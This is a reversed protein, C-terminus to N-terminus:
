RPMRELSGVYRVILGTLPHRVEIHFGFREGDAYEYSDGGPAWRRPLPLPGLNWGRVEFRLKGGDVLLAIHCTFPGFREHLLHESRGRGRWMESPLSRGAFSRQWSEGRAHPTVSLVVAVDDGAVPFRIAGAILRALWGEGREVRARGAFTTQQAVCHLAQVPGPLAHWGQGLVRQFLTGSVAQGGPADTTRSDTNM